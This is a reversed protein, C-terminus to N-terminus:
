ENEVAIQKKCKNRLEFTKKHSNFRRVKVEGLKLQKKLYYLLLYHIGYVYSQLSENWRRVVLSRRKFEEM